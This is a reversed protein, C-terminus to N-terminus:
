DDRRQELGGVRGRLLRLRLHPRGRRPAAPEGAVERAGGRAGLTLTAMTIPAVAAHMPLTAMTNTILAM